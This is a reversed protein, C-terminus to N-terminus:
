SFMEDEASELEEAAEELREGAGRLLYALAGNIDLHRDYCFSSIAQITRLGERDMKVWCVSKGSYDFILYNYPLTDGHKSLLENLLRNLDDVSQIGGEEEAREVKDRLDPPLDQKIGRMLDKFGKEEVLGMQDKLVADGYGKDLMELYLRQFKEPDLKGKLTNLRVNQIKAMDEDFDTEVIPVEKMDLVNAADWRHKGGIILRFREAGEEAQEETLYESERGQPIPAVIIPELFGVQLIADVLNKFTRDNQKNPNWACAVLRATPWTPLGQPIHISM